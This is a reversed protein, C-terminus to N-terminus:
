SEIRLDLRKLGLGSKLKELQREAERKGKLCGGAFPYVAVTAKGGKRELRWTGTVRGNELVAAEVQGAKRFVEHHRDPALFLSKDKFGMMLPDFKALLRTTRLDGFERANRHLFRDGPFGEVHVKVLETEVEAFARRVDIAPLGTWYRFDALTAPGHTAFYRCMLEKVAENPTRIFQVPEIAQFRTAGKEPTLLVIRGAYALWKLDLGWGAFPIARLDPIEDHIQQRTMPGSALVALVSVEMSEFQAASMASVQRMWTEHRKRQRPGLAELILRHDAATHVHITCRLSWSKVIEGVRTAKSEWTAPAKATRAAVAVPLSVAYQTQIAVCGGVVATPDPAPVSLSQAALIRARAEDADMKLAESM